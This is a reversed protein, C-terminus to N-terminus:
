YFSATGIREVQFGLSALASADIINRGDFVLRPRRVVNSIARWDIRSKGASGAFETSEDKVAVGNVSASEDAMDIGSDSSAATYGGNATAGDNQSTEITQGDTRFEDWETLVIIVCAERCAEVADECVTVRSEPTPVFTLLDKHIQQQSVKPDYVSLSAGEVLLKSAITIAASERTDGTDKKYAWGLIAVRKHTLTGHLAAIIRQTFRDKQYENIEVVSEWYDAVKYLHLSRAIYVLSLVDKKFCSGGFGVSAKLFKSGIRADLGVSHALEGIDAGTAECVASLSNISSIRQALMCNAALKALESSWLNVSIIRDRPVWSYVSALSDAAAQSRDNRDCGILVRDPHMLNDIASGEAQSRDTLM